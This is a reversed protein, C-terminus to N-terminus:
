RYWTVNKRAVRAPNGALLNLSKYEGRLVLSKAGIVCGDGIRAGPLITVDHGVWVQNGIAVPLCRSTGSLEHWNSDTICCGWAIICDYGIDIAKEAMIRTECTIGSGTSNLRGKINIVAGAAAQLLTGQGIQFENEVKLAADEGVIISIHANGHGWSNLIIKNGIMIKGTKAKCVKVPIFRGSYAFRVPLFRGTALKTLWMTYPLIILDKISVKKIRWFRKLLSKKAPDALV